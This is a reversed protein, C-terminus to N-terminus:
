LGTSPIANGRVPNEHVRPKWLAPPVDRAAAKYVSALRLPDPRLVVLVPGSISQDDTGKRVWLTTRSVEKEGRQYVQTFPDGLMWAKILSALCTSLSNRCVQTDIFYHDMGHMISGYTAMHYVLRERCRVSHEQLGTTLTQKVTLNCFTTEPSFFHLVIQYTCVPSASTVCHQM